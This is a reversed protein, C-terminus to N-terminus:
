AHWTVAIWFDSISKDPLFLTFDSDPKAPLAIGAPGGTLKGALLNGLSADKVLTDKKSVAPDDLDFVDMTAPVPTKSSRAVLNLFRDDEADQRSYAGDRLLANKRISSKTLTLTCNVSAYPGTVCPISVAVSKIRRFYHGPGDLDFLTEPLRLTCRGTTRLQVLAMPDVQLLSVSKTLEYERQNLDHYAVDM